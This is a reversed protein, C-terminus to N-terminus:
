RRFGHRSATRMDMESGRRMENRSPTWERSRLDRRSPERNIRTTSLERKIRTTSRERNIRTTSRERSRRTTSHKSINAHSRSGAHFSQSPGPDKVIALTMKEGTAMEKKPEKAPTAKQTKLETASEEAKDKKSKDEKTKPLLKKFYFHM